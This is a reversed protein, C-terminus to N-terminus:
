AQNPKIFAVTLSLPAKGEEPAITKLQILTPRSLMVLEFDGLLM